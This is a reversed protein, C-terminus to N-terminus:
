EQSTTDLTHFLPNYLKHYIKVEVYIRHKYRYARRLRIGGKLM